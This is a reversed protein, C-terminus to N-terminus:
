ELTTQVGFQYVTRLEQIHLNNTAEKQKQHPVQIICEASKKLIIFGSNHVERMLFQKREDTTM